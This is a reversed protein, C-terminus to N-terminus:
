YGHCIADMANPHLQQLFPKSNPPHYGIRSLHDEVLKEAWKKNLQYIMTRSVEDNTLFKTWENTLERFQYNAEKYKKLWEGKLAVEDFIEVNEYGRQILDSYADKVGKMNANGM